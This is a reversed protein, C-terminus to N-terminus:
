KLCHEVATRMDEPPGAFWYFMVNGRHYLVDGDVSPGANWQARWDKVQGIGAEAEGASGYFWLDVSNIEEKGEKFYVSLTGATPAEIDPSSRSPGPAVVVDLKPASAPLFHLSQLCSQTATASYVRESGSVLFAVALLSALGLAVLWGPRALSM